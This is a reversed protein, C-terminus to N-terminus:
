MQLMDADALPLRMTFTSGKGVESEVEAVGRHLQCIHKVIALGLGTGGVDRSRAKDVRYFREFLRPLHEEGIGEGVDRVQLVVKNAVTRASLYVQTHERTYKVANDALNLLAQELLDKNGDVWLEEDCEIHIHIGRKDAQLQCDLAVAHILEGVNVPEFARAERATAQEIRSLSLLDEVIATLRNAQRHIIGLFRHADNPNDLAGEQLTEVFGIISTTPTKLEHSVNAVFDRRMNELRKVETVDALVVLSGIVQHNADTLPNGYLRMHRQGNIQVTVEEELAQDELTVREVFALVDPHRIIERVPRGRVEKPQLQLFRGAAENIDLINGNGDLALVGEVMSALVAQQLYQQNSLQKITEDLQSAMHNMTSVMQFLESSEPPDIKESFDGQAFRSAKRTIELIPLSIRRSVVVSVGFVILSLALLAGLMRNISVDVFGNIRELPLAVRTYGLLHDEYDLRRAVYMMDMKLTNSFRVATGTKDAKAQLVEPRTGHNEMQDPHESTDSLVKGDAAIITIRTNIKEGRYKFFRQLNDLRGSQILAGVEDEILMARAKLDAETGELYLRRSSAISLFTTALVAAGSILLFPFLVKLYLPRTRM